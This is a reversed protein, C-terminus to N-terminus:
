QPIMKKEVPRFLPVFVAPDGPAAARDQQEFECLKRVAYVDCPRRQHGVPRVMTPAWDIEKSCM